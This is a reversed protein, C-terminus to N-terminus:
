LIVGAVAAAAYTCDLAALGWASYPYNRRPDNESLNVGDKGDALWAGDRALLATAAVWAIANTINFGLSIARWNRTDYRRNFCRFVSFTLTWGFGFWTLGYGAHVMFAAAGYAALLLAVSALVMQIVKLPKTWTM